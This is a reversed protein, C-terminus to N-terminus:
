VIKGSLRKCPTLSGNAVREKFIHHTVPLPGYIAWIVSDIIGCVSRTYGRSGGVLSNEVFAAKHYRKGGHTFVVHDPILEMAKNDM